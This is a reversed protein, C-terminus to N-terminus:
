ELSIHTSARKHAIPFDSIQGKIIENMNNDLDVGFLM